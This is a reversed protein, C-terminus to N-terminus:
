SKKSTKIRFKGIWRLEAGKFDLIEYCVGATCAPGGRREGLFLQFTQNYNPKYRLTGGLFVRSEEGEIVIFPDDTLEGLIGVYLSSGINLGLLFNFNYILESNRNIIQYEIEPLFRVDKKIGIDTYLGASYRHNERKFPDKSYDLFAKYEVNKGFSSQIEFFYQTFTSSFAGNHALSHNFNLITGNDLNYFLDLQYGDEDFPDSVHISRNLVRYTQQKVAAPPENIGAGLSFDNYKRYEISYSFNGSFGNLGTYFAYNNEALDSAYEAYYGLGKFINGEVHGSLYNVANGGNPEHRMFILGAKHGKVYNFEATAATVNDIRREERGFTPPFVNNLVDARLIQFSAKKSRYKVSGGLLDRHFYTRSRFGFDEILAGPFEFSRLLMGRGLTQYFNGLKIDWKKKKYGLSVQSLDFYSRGDFTTQYQELTTSVSLGKKRYDLELRDYISPFPDASEDPLKGFQGESLNSINIQALATGYSIFLLFLFTFIIRM